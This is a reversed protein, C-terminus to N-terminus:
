IEPRGCEELLAKVHKNLEIFRDGLVALAQLFGSEFERHVVALCEPSEGSHENAIAIIKELVEFVNICGSAFHKSQRVHEALQDIQM